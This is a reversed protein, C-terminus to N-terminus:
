TGTFVAKAIINVVSEAIWGLLVFLWLYLLVQAVRMVFSYM